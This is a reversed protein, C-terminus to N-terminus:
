SVKKQNQIGEDMSCTLAIEQPLLVDTRPEDFGVFDPDRGVRIEYDELYVYARSYPYIFEIDNSIGSFRVYPLRKMLSIVVPDIHLEECLAENIPHGGEPAWSVEWDSLYNLQLYTRYIDSIINVITTENYPICSVQFEAATDREEPQEEPLITTVTPRPAEREFPNRNWHWYWYLGIIILLLLNDFTQIWFFFRPYKRLISQPEPPASPVSPLKGDM